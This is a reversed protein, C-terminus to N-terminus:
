APRYLATDALLGRAIPEFAPLPQAGGALRELVADLRRDFVHGLSWGPYWRADAVPGPPWTAVIRHRPDAGISAMLQQLAPLPGELVQAFHESSLWLVGTVALQANRRRAVEVIREPEPGCPDVASVSVYFLRCLVRRRPM